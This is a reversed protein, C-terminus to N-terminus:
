KYSMNPGPHNELTGFLTCTQSVSFGGCINNCINYIYLSISKFKEQVNNLAACNMFVCHFSLQYFIRTSKSIIDNAAKLKNKKKIQLM